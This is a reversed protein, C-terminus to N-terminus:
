DKLIKFVYTTSINLKKAIGYKSLGQERLKKIRGKLNASETRNRGM